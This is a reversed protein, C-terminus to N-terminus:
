GLIEQIFSKNVYSTKNYRFVAFVLCFPLDRFIASNKGPITNAQSLLPQWVRNCHNDQLVCLCQLFPKPNQKPRNWVCKSKADKKLPVPLFIRVVQWSRLWSPSEMFRISASNSTSTDCTNKAWTPHSWWGQQWSIRERDSISARLILMSCLFKYVGM